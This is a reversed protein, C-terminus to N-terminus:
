RKIEEIGAVRRVKKPKVAAEPKKEAPKEEAKTEEKKEQEAPADPTESEPLKKVPKCPNGAAMVGSPIDECVVSGGAIVVNDGITVGPMVCVNGGIWVNSGVKIPKAYELGSNRVKYDLPHGATYFGCNPGIFVNDGFVVEACDLIVMNHNAYFNDGIVINYGYDCFFNAEIWTNEGRLAVLRDLMREKKQYDNYEIANFEVCLKKAKVREAVLEKDAANYLEGAQQKEKETMKFGEKLKPIVTVDAEDYIDSSCFICHEASAARQVM